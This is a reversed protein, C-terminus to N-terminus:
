ATCRPSSTSCSRINVSQLGPQFLELRILLALVRRGDVHHSFLLTCRASTRGHNTAFLWRRGMPHGHADHHDHDAHVGPQPVASM